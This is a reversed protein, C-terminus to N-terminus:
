GNTEEEEHTHPELSEFEAAAEEADIEGSRLRDLIDLRAQKRMDIEAADQGFGMEAIVENLRARLTWYSTNYEREMEKLNGRHRMFATIFNQSKTSLKCFECPEYRALIVTECNTCALRTVELNGGCNPCRGLIKAM